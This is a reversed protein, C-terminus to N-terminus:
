YEGAFIYDVNFNDPNLLALRIDCVIDAAKRSLKTIFEPTNMPLSTDKQWTDMDNQLAEYSSVIEEPSIEGCRLQMLYELETGSHIPNHDGTEAIRKLDFMLRFAHMIMKNDMSRYVRTGDLTSKIRRFQARSYSGFKAFVAHSLFEKRMDVLPAWLPSETLVRCEPTFMIDLAGSENAKLLQIFKKLEFMATDHTIGDVERIEQSTQWHGEGFGSLTVALPEVYVGRIDIDSDPLDTGYLRSGGIVQLLTCGGWTTVFSPNNEVGRNTDLEIV